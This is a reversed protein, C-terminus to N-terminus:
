GGLNVCKQINIDGSGCESVRPIKKYLRERNAHKPSIQIHGFIQNCPKEHCNRDSIGTM